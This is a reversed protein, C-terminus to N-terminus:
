DCHKNNMVFATLFFPPSSFFSFFVYRYMNILYELEEATFHKVMAQRTITRIKGTDMQELNRMLQDREKPDPMKLMHQRCPPPLSPPFPPAPSYKNSLGARRSTHIQAFVTGNIRGPRSGLKRGWSSWLRSSSTVRMMGEGEQMCEDDFEWGIGCSGCFWLGVRVYRAMAEMGEEVPNEDMYRDAMKMRNKVTDKIAASGPLCLFMAGLALTLHVLRPAM